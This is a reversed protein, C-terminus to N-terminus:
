PGLISIVSPAPLTKASTNLALLQLVIEMVESSRDVGSPDISVCYRTGDYTTGIEGAIGTCDERVLFLRAAGLGTGIEPTALRQSVGIDLEGRALEGLYYIIGEVSRITFNVQLTMTESTGAATRVLVPFRNAPQGYGRREAAKMRVYPSAGCREAAAEDAGDASGQPTGTITDGPALVGLASLTASATPLNWLDPDVCFRSEQTTQQLRFYETVGRRALDEKESPTLDPDSTTTFRKLAAGEALPALARLSAIDGAPIPPGINTITKVVESSLGLETLADVSQEFKSFHDGYYNNYFAIPTNANLAIDIRGIVLSLLLAKPFGQELYYDISTIPIPSLIGEYFEQTDLNAVSFAQNGSITASPSAVNSHGYTAPAPDFPLSFAATGSMSTQGTVQTFDTFQLPERYAARMVNLMLLSEKIDEAQQNYTIARPGFYDVATCAALALLSLLAPGLLVQPATRGWRRSKGM